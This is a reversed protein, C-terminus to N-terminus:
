ILDIYASVHEFIGTFLEFGHIDNLRSAILKQCIGLIPVLQQQQVLVSSGKEVYAILLKVLAPINGHSEWLAPLLLPPLMALYSQPIGPETHLTLLQSLIQFVYPMFEAVDQQLIEQFPTFLFSEFSGVLNPQAVCVFKVLGALTEFAYHNFKPNSPNKSIERIIGTIEQLVNEVFPVLDQRTSVVVRMVCRMLYDNEALKEPTKGLKILGFLQSLLQGSFPAIDTSSLLPYGEARMALIREICHAAWTYVVYNNSQLHNSLKPFVQMLQAKTLQGRFVMLYKIANVKIIPHIAGDVAVELDPIVHSSFVPLVPVDENTQTAGAHATVAKASLSTILYFATDKAKWNAVKNENYADLYQTIYVSFIETVEKAFHELLGRVLDASARRRTDTDSGELDRRIYEIPDDEFLEEDSERLMMNPLVIDTCIRKLTEVNEFLGKHRIPKVVSTLFSIAKSM